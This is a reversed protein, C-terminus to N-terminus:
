SIFLPQVLLLSLSDNVRNLLSSCLLLLSWNPMPHPELQFCRGFFWEMPGCMQLMHIPPMDSRKLLQGDIPCCREVLKLFLRRQFVLIPLRPTGVENLLINRAAPDRHLVGAQELFAMGAAVQTVLHLRRAISLATGERKLMTVLDGGALYEMAMYQEGEIIAMGFYQVVNPHRLERLIVAETQLDLNVEKPDNSLWVCEV